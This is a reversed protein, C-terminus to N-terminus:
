TTKDGFKLVLGLLVSILIVSLMLCSFNNGLHRKKNLNRSGPCNRM